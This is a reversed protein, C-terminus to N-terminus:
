KTEHYQKLTFSFTSGKNPGESMASITGGHMDLISKCIYLGLGTGGNDSKNMQYSTKIFGFKQFLKGEYEKTFGMGTDMVKTTVADDGVEFRIMISGGKPTFKMSNGVLNILVERIKESDAMVKPVARDEVALTLGLQEARTKTEAIVDQSLKQLDVPELNMAVRGSDIRSTDLMDNILNILRVTSGYARDVYLKQKDTLTGNQAQMLMWLYSRVITMPTRLEHSAISVFEDKLKDLQKLKINASQIERYLLANDIAVGIVETLRDMIDVKTSTISEGDESLLIMLAGLLEGRVLLPFTAVTRINLNEQITSATHLDTMPNLVDFLYKTTKKLKGSVTLVLLNDKNNKLSVANDRCIALLKQEYEPVTGSLEVGISRLEGNGVLFIGVGRFGIEHVILKSVQESIIKPDTVASLVIEYIQRLLSLVKNKEALEVNKKYIEENIHSLESSSDNSKVKQVTGYVTSM